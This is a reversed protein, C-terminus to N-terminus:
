NGKRSAGGNLWRIEIDNERLTEIAITQNYKMEDFDKRLDYYNNKWVDLEREVHELRKYLDETLRLLNHQTAYRSTTFTAFIKPIFMGIIVAVILYHSENLTLSFLEALHDM